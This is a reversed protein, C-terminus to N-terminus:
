GITVEPPLWTGDLSIAFPMVLLNALLGPIFDMGLIPALSGITM